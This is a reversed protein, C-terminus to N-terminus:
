AEKRGAIRPLWGRKELANDLIGLSNELRSFIELEKLSIPFGQSACEDADARQEEIARMINERTELIEKLQDLEDHNM